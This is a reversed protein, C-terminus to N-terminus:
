NGGLLLKYQELKEVSADYPLNTSVNCGNCSISVVKNKEINWMYNQRLITDLEGYNYAYNVINDCDGMCNCVYCEMADNWENPKKCIPCERDIYVGTFCVMDAADDDNNYGRGSRSLDEDDDDDNDDDNDDNFLYDTLSNDLVSVGDVTIDGGNSAYTFYYQGDNDIDMSMGDAILKM